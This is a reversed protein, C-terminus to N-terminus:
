LAKEMPTTHLANIFIEDLSMDKVQCDYIEVGSSVLKEMVRPLTVNRDMMRFELNMIGNSKGVPACDAVGELGCVDPIVSKPYHGIKLRCIEKTKFLHRLEPASGLARVHGHAIIALRDCLQEAEILNHTALIVTRGRGSVKEKIFQRVTQASAPDLSRTPEDVFLIRPDHLMGRAIALKQRMGTSYNQFRVDARDSLGLMDLLETIREQAKQKDMHYLAAQFMLNERGTLRWYFSREDATVLGIEKRVHFEEKRIDRGFVEATGSDPLVLCCVMKVFTTKGAGNPGLLGFFEGEEIELNINDAATIYEKKRFPMLDRYGATKSYRKTLSITKIANM